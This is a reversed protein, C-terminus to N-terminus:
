QSAARHRHLGPLVTQNRCSVRRESRQTTVSPYSTLPGALSIQRISMAALLFTSHFYPLMSVSLM